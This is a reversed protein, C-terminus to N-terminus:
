AQMLLLVAGIYPGLVVVVAFLLASTYDGHTLGQFLFIVVAVPLSRLLFSKQWSVSVIAFEESQALEVNATEM